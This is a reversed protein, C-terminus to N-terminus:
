GTTAKLHREYDEPTDLDDLLSASVVELQFIEEAHSDLVGRLGVGDHQTLVEERLRAALLVPHGRHGAHVPLIIGRRTRHFAHILGAVLAHTIGPQDGLVVLIAECAAPLARLGCRVSSLMDGEPDPNGVFSVARGPLVQQIQAGQAGVVVVIPELGGVLLEDVIRAIIAKGGVPLLLKQTVMRQSRGAALVVAGIM